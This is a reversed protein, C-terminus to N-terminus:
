REPTSRFRALWDALNAPLARQTAPDPRTAHAERTAQVYRRVVDRAALRRAAGGISWNQWWRRPSRGHTSLVLAALQVALAADVALAVRSFPQSVAGIVLFLVVGYPVCWPLIRSVRDTATRVFWAAGVFTITIVAALPVLAVLLPWMLLLPKPPYVSVAAFWSTGGVAVAHAAVILWGSRRSRQRLGVLATKATAANAVAAQHREDRNFVVFGGLQAGLFAVAAEAPVLVVVLAREDAHLMAFCVLILFPPVTAAAFLEAVFGLIRRSRQVHPVGLLQGGGVVAYFSLLLSVLVGFYWGIHKELTTGASQIWEPVAAWQQRQIAPDQWALLVTLLCLLGAFVGIDGLAQRLPRVLSEDKEQEVSAM